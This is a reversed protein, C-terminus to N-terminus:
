CLGFLHEEKYQGELSRKIDPLKKKDIRNDCLAALKTTDREGALIAEIILIGSVGTLSSIVNHLKINMVDLNKQMHQVHSAAMGIHDQRLRM